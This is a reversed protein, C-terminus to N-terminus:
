SGVQATNLNCRNSSHLPHIMFRALRMKLDCIKLIAAETNIDAAVVKKNAFQVLVLKPVVVFSPAPFVAPPVFVVGPRLVGPPAGVVRVLVPLSAVPVM